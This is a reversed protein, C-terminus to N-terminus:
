SIGHKSAYQELEQLYAQKRHDDLWSGIFANRMFQILEEPKYDSTKQVEIMTNSLYRSAFEEPDDTNITVSLGLDFMKRMRKVRRPGPDSLRWTPCVTLCINKAKIEEVLDPNELCNVGHDIREVGLLHICQHIHLPSNEQDVDCHATLRYGEKQARQFFDIFKPPPNDQEDSDLGVGIIHKRYPAALDLMHIADEPPRDRNACMILNNAVNYTRAGEERGEQLGEIMEEFSLGQELHVQPDFMLEVYRINEIQCQKLFAVTIEYLDRGTRLVGVREYHHRLFNALHPHGYDQAALLETETKYPIDIRNRQAMELLMTPQIAGEIHLHLEAKPMNKIFSEMDHM